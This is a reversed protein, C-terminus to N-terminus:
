AVQILTEKIPTNKPMDFNKLIGDKDIYTTNHFQKRFVGKIWGHKRLEADIVVQKSDLIKNFYDILCDKLMNFSKESTKGYGTMNLSPIYSVHYDGDRLEFIIFDGKVSDKKKNVNLSQKKKPDTDKIRVISLETKKMNIGKACNSSYV